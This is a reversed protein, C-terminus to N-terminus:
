EDKKYNLSKLANQLNSFISYNKLNLNLSVATRAINPHIGTLLPKVGLLILTEALYFLEQAVTEDVNHLGSLDIILHTLQLTQSRQLTSDILFQARETDLEGILPLIAIHEFLPIVPVSLEQLSLRFQESMTETYNIFSFSIENVMHDLFYDITLTVRLIDKVSMESEQALHELFSWIATKCFPIVQLVTSLSLNLDVANEGVKEAWLSSTAANDIRRNLNNSLVTLVQASLNMFDHESMKAATAYNQQSNGIYINFAQEALIYKNESLKKSILHIISDMTKSNPDM